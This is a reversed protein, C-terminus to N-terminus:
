PQWAADQANPVLLHLNHGDADILYLGSEGFIPANSGEFLIQKSDPSWIPPSMVNYNVSLPHQDGGDANMVRLKSETTFVIRQGDPSWSPSKDGIAFGRRYTVQNFREDDIDIIYIYSTETIFFGPMAPVASLVIHRGDPSFSLELGTLLSALIFRKVVNGETDVVIFEEKTRDNEAIQIFVIEQRGPIWYPFVFGETPVERMGGDLVDIVTIKTDAFGNGRTGGSSSMAIYQGNPSWSLSGTIEPITFQQREGSEFNFISIGEASRYAIQSGDPSWTLPQRAAFDPALTTMLHHPVDMVTLQATSPFAHNNLTFAILSTPAVNGIVFVLLMLALWLAILRAALRIILM